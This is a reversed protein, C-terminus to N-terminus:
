KKHQNVPTLLARHEDWGMYLRQRVSQEPTGLEKCWDRICQTKGNMTVNHTNRSNRAQVARTAWCCNGPAYDGDNNKRELTLGPPCPGMDAFFQEFSEAWADCM